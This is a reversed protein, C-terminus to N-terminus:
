RQRRQMSHTAMDAIGGFAYMRTQLLSTQKTGCASMCRLLGNRDVPVYVTFKRWGTALATLNQGLRRMGGTPSFPEFLM